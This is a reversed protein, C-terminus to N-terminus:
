QKVMSLWHKYVTPDKTQLDEWPFECYELGSMSVSIKGDRIAKLTIERSRTYAAKADEITAYEKM